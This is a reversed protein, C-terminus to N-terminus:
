SWDQTSKGLSNHTKAITDTYIGAHSFISTEVEHKQIQTPVQYKTIFIKIHHILDSTKCKCTHMIEILLHM